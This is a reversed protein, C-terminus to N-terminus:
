RRDAEGHPPEDWAARQLHQWRMLGRGTSRLDRFRCMLDGKLARSRSRPQTMFKDSFTVVM